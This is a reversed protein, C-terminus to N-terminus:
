AAPHIIKCNVQGLKVFTRWHPIIYGANRLNITPLVVCSLGIGIIISVLDHFHALFSYRLSTFHRFLEFPCQLINIGSVFLPRLVQLLKLSHRLSYRRELAPKALTSVRKIIKHLKWVLYRNKAVAKAVISLSTRVLVSCICLILAKDTLKHVSINCYVWCSAKFCRLYNRDLLILKLFEILILRLQLKIFTRQILQTTFLSM